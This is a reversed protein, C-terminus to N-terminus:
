FSYTLGLGFLEKFQVLPEPDGTGGDPEFLIDRDYILQTILTASIYENVTFKLLIDWNIDIYQPNELYNSFFDIKTDVLVNKM